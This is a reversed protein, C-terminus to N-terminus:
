LQRLLNNLDVRERVIEKVRSVPIREQTMSDRERITVMQDRLTDHDVTICYPTGIADMRRYRKGISDKEEYECDFEFRLDNFIQLAAEPLGDKRLLPFVAV